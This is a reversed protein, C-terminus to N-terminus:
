NEHDFNLAALFVILFQFLPKLLSPRIKLLDSSGVNPLSRALASDNMCEQLLGNKKSTTFTYKTSKRMATCWGRRRGPKVPEKINTLKLKMILM